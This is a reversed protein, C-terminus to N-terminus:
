WITAINIKIRSQDRYIGSLYKETRHINKLLKRNHHHLKMAAKVCHHLKTYHQAVTYNEAIRHLNSIRNEQESAVNNLQQLRLNIEHHLKLHNSSPNPLHGRHIYKSLNHLRQRQEKFIMGSPLLFKLRHLIEESM